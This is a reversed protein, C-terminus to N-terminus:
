SVTSQGIESLMADVSAVVGPKDVIIVHTWAIAFVCLREGAAAWCERSIYARKLTEERYVVCILDAVDHFEKYTWTKFPPPNKANLSGLSHIHVRHHVMKDVCSMMGRVVDGLRECLEGRNQPNDKTDALMQTLNVGSLWYRKWEQLLAHLAVVNDNLVRASGTLNTTVISRTVRSSPTKQPVPTSSSM